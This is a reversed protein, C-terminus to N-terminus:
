KNFNFFGGWLLILFFISEFLLTMYFNDKIEIIKGHEKRSDIINIIMIILIIIQPIYKTM